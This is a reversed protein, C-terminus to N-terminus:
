RNTATVSIQSRIAKEKPCVLNEERIRDHKETTKTNTNKKRADAQNYAGPHRIGGEKTRGRLPSSNSPTTKRQITSIDDDYIDDPYRENFIREIGTFLRWACEELKRLNNYDGRGVIKMFETFGDPKTEYIKAESVMSNLSTYSKRNIFAMLRFVAMVADALIPFLNARNKAEITNFLKGFAEQIENLMDIAFRDCKQGFNKTRYKQLKAIFRRNTIPILKDSGAIYWDKNPENIMKHYEQETVFLGEVLLGDHIKAFGRPLHSNRKVIIMLELDSYSQDEHRAYSGDAAIAILKKGLERRLMPAIIKRLIETREAHTHKKLGINNAKKSLLKTKKL